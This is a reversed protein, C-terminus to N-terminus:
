PKPQDDLWKLHGDILNLKKPPRDLLEEILARRTGLLNELDGLSHALKGWDIQVGRDTQKAYGTAKLAFEYRSFILYFESIENRPALLSQEPTSLPINGESPM